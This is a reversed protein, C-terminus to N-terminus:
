VNRMSPLIKDLNKAFSNMDDTGVSALVKQGISEVNLTELSAKGSHIDSVLENAVKEIGRMMPAPINGNM